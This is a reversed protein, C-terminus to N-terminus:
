SKKDLAEAEARFASARLAHKREAEDLASQAEDIAHQRSVRERQRAAEERAQVGKRRAQEREYALAAKREAAKDTQRWFGEQTQGAERCSKDTEPQRGPQRTLRFSASHGM